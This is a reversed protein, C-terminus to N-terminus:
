TEEARELSRDHHVTLALGCAILLAVGLAFLGFVNQGTSQKIAGMLYPGVFGGLNGVSNIFAIGGAAAAGHLFSTPLSWFPGLMSWLGIAAVCLALVGLALPLKLMIVTGASAMGFAAVFAASGVVKKREGSRDSHMGALVMCIAALSYPSAAVLGNQLTSLGFGKLIDPLWIGFGYFGIQMAFYLAALHVVTPHAFADKLSMHQHSQRRAHEKDLRALICAKEEETLWSAVQPRDTLYFWAVVGIIISPIGEVLFLWQWSQLGGVGKMWTLLATSLPAGFAGSLPTATMFRSIAKAREAAPFWYTLYLIMGPFFGAEAVGLLFRLGYFSWKDHTFLMCCSIIGWTVMIRAMWRRAGVKELILNSPVEFLFYSIFFIGAGTGYVVESLGLADQM